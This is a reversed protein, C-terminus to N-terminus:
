YTSNLNKRDAIWDKAWMSPEGDPKIRLLEIVTGDRCAVYVGGEDSIGLLGGSVTGKADINAIRSLLVKVNRGNDVFFAGPYPFTQARIFDHLEKAPKEFNFIGDKPTRRKYYTAQSDDQHKASFIGSTWNDINEVIIKKSAAAVKEYVTFVTDYEEIRFFEQAFLEGKDYQEVMRFFSDGWQTEGTLIAWNICAAGRGKPLPAPHEGICGYKAVNLLPEKFKQSWGSQIIIDPSKESIWDLTVQDNVDACYHIPIGYEAATDAYTFYNAKGIATEPSLNVIGVVETKVSKDSCIGEIMSKGVNTCSIFLVKGM